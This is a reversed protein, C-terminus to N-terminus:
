KIINVINMERRLKKIAKHEIRQDYSPKNGRRCCKLWCRCCSKVKDGVSVKNITQRNKFAERAAKDTISNDLRMKAPGQVSYLKRVLTQELSDFQLTSFFIGVLTILAQKLGGVDALWDLVTYV